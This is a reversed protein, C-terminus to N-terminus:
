DMTTIDKSTTSLLYKVEKEGMPVGIIKHILERSVKIRRGDGMRLTDTELDYSKVIWMGLKRSTSDFNFNNHFHELGMEELDKIKQFTCTNLVNKVHVPSMKTQIKVPDNKCGEKENVVPVLESEDADVKKIVKNPTLMNGKLKWLKIKKAYNNKRNSTNQSMIDEEAQDQQEDEQDNRGKNNRRNLVKKGCSFSDLLGQIGIEKYLFGKHLDRRRKNYAEDELNIFGDYSRPKLYDLIGELDDEDKITNNFWDNNLKDHIVGLITNAKDERCEEPDELNEELDDEENIFRERKTHASALLPRGLIIPMRIDEVMDLIVFDVPFIFKEIKILLNEVIGKPTCKTNDAMEIVM